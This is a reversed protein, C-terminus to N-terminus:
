LKFSIRIRRTRENQVLVLPYVLVAIGLINRVLPSRRSLSRALLNMGLAVGVSEPVSNIIPRSFPNLETFKPQGPFRPALREHQTQVIDIAQELALANALSATTDAQASTGCALALAVVISLSPRLRRTRTAKHM